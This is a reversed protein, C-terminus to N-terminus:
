LGRGLSFDQEIKLLPNVPRTMVGFIANQGFNLPPLLHWVDGDNQTSASDIISGLNVLCCRGQQSKIASADIDGDGGGIDGLHVDDVMLSPFRDCTLGPIDPDFGGPDGATRDGIHPVKIGGVKVRHDQGAPKASGFIETRKGHVAGVARDVFIYGGEQARHL